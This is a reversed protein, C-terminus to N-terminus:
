FCLGQNDESMSVSTRVQEIGERVGGKSSADVKHAVSAIDAEFASTFGDAQSMAPALNARLAASLIDQLIYKDNVGLLLKREVTLAAVAVTDAKSMVCACESVFKWFYIHLICVQNISGFMIGESSPEIADEHRPVPSINGKSAATSADAQFAEPVASVNSIVSM